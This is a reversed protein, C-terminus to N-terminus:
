HPFKRVDGRATLDIVERLEGLEDGIQCVTEVKVQVALPPPQHLHPASGQGVLGRHVM